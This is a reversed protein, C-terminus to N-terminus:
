YEQPLRSLKALSFVPGDRCVYQSGINCRGCMGLGCKMRMEMSLLTREPPFGLEEVVPLTFKIMAPPGCVLAYAEESSPAVEKTVAPVFGVKGAWEEDGTDVTLHLHIDSRKGWKELDDKYLLLGPRRAGYIVTIDKFNDRNTEDLALNTLARLTSFGFGGGIMVMNKGKLEEIPYGNGLPGRVGVTRGAEMNHLATTVVGIKSVTFELRGPQTPSSAMGFPAEGKGLVSLEVFQGPIYKFDAEDEQNVFSLSFTKIDWDDTEVTVKDIRMPLPLYPNKM